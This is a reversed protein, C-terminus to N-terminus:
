FGWEKKMKEAKDIAYAAMRIYNYYKERAGYVKDIEISISALEKKLKDTDATEDNQIQKKINKARNFLYEITSEQAGTLETYTAM